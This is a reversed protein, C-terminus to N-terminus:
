EDGKQKNLKRVTELASLYDVEHKAAYAKVEKDEEQAATLESEDENDSSGTQEFKALVPMNEALEKAAEYGVANFALKNVENTAQTAKGDTILSDLLNSVNETEQKAQYDSLDKEAKTKAELSEKVSNELEPVRAADTLAAEVDVDFNDKLAAIHEKKDM